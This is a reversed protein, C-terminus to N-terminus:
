RGGSLPDITSFAERLGPSPLRIEHTPPGLSPASCRRAHSSTCMFTRTIDTSWTGMLLGCAPEGTPTHGGVRPPICSKSRTLLCQANNCISKRAEAGAELRIEGDIEGGESVSVARRPSRSATKLKSPLSARFRVKRPNFRLRAQACARPVDEPRSRARLFFPVIAPSHGTLRHPPWPPRPRAPGTLGEPTTRSRGTHDPRVDRRRPRGTM